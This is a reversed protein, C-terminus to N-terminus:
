RTELLNHQGSEDLIPYRLSGLPRRAARHCCSPVFFPLTPDDNPSVSENRAGFNKLTGLTVDRNVEVRSRERERERERERTQVTSLSATTDRPHRADHRRRRLISALAIYFPFFSFFSFLLPSRLGSRERSSCDSLLAGQM